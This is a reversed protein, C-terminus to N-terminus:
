IAMAEVDDRHRLGCDHVVRCAADRMHDDFEGIVAGIAHVPSQKM